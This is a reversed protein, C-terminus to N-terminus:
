KIKEERAISISWGTAGPHVYEVMKGYRFYFRIIRNITSKTINQLHMRKGNHETIAFTSNPPPRVDWHVYLANM